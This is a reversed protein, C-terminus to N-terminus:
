TKRKVKRAIGAKVRLESMKAIIAKKDRKLIREMVSWKARRAYLDKLAIIEGATWRKGQRRGRPIDYEAKPMPNVIPDRRPQPVTLQPKAPAHTVVHDHGALAALLRADLPDSTDGVIELKFSAM